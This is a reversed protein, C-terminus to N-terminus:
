CDLKTSILVDCQLDEGAVLSIFFFILHVLIKPCTRSDVRAKSVDPCREVCEHDGSSSSWMATNYLLGQPFTESVEHLTIRTM